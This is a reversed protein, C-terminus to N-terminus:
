PSVSTLLADKCDNTGNYVALTPHICVRGPPLLKLRVVRVTNWPKSLPILLDLLPIQHPLSVLPDVPHSTLHPSLWLQPLERLLYPPNYRPLDRSPPVLLIRVGVGRPPTLADLSRTVTTGDSRAVMGFQGQVLVTRGVWLRPYRRLGAQVESVTYAREHSALHGVLVSAFGAVLVLGLVSCLIRMMVARYWM